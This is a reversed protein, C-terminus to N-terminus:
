KSPGLNKSSQGIRFAGAVHPQDLDLRKTSHLIPKLSQTYFFSVFYRM